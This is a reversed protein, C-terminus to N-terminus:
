LGRRQAAIWEMITSPRGDVLVASRDLDLRCEDNLAYAWSMHGFHEFPRGESDRYIGSLDEVRKWLSMHANKAGKGLLRRYTPMASAEPPVVEDNAAHTFWIPTEALSEIGKEDIWEDRYAECSPFAAAFFGPRELLLRMTMYGGNSCGGLYIRDRDVDPKSELWADILALLAGSFRTSGDPPYAREGDHMWVLDNQPCLLYAGGFIGQTRASSLATVRNGLLVLRPDKGGEGAGHLWVILPRPGPARLRPEYSAYRLGIRGYRPDEYSFDGGLDFGELGREFPKEEDEHGLSLGEIAEGGPARLPRNQRIRHRPEVFVNYFTAFDFRITSCIPEKPDVRLILAFRSGREGGLRRGKGDCLYADIVARRGASVRAPSEPGRGEGPDLVPEGSGIDHRSVEVDFADPGLSTAEIEKHADVVLAVVCPGWDFGEVIARFRPSM